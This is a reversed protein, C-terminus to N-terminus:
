KGICFKSFLVDLIDEIGVDGTVKGLEQSAYRLEEAAFVLGDPAYTLSAELYNVAAELHTRHRAHTILPEEDSCGKEFRDKLLTAVGDVFSGMGNDNTISGIWMPHNSFVQCAKELDGASAKDLKNLFVATESTLLAAVESDIGNSSINELSVVCLRVDAEEVAKKAREIGIQEVAHSDTSTDRLHRLGATDSVRVPIGGVDLSVELVDRTTGAIPTVIAAPRAALYNLLSSKGANPAGFIALKVGSRLIEGRRNDDLHSRILIVLKKTQDVLQEWVGEEIEEGEGFDIVAEAM